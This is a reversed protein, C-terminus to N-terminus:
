FNQASLKLNGNNLTIFAKGGKVELKESGVKLKEKLRM